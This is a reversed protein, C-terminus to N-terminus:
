SNNSKEVIGYKYYAACTGESSVMCPGIPNTTNCKIGFLKCQPPKVTGTLIKGCLCGVPEKFNKLKIRFKQLADLIKYENRFKLGSNKIIGLGRWQSDTEEFVSYLLRIALPNGADKVVKKYQIEISTKGSHIQKLIMYIGQLIESPEFGTIVSPINYKETIFQYPKSGIIASVHGPLLFGDIKIRQKLLVKLAPPILKFAPIVSFNEIKKRKAIRLTVAITPSTTEFGVGIFVIEKKPNNQAIKLADLCSYVIRVDCGFSKEKELSSNSGPVRLMDGFTTIIKDKKALEIASDIISTPTVCVPCGPGSILNINKPLVSKLGASAIAMTHTGCVEMINVKKNALSTIKEILINSTNYMINWKNTM